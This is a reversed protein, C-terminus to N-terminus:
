FRGKRPEAIRKHENDGIYIVHDFTQNAGTKDTDDQSVYVLLLLSCILGVFLFFQLKNKKIM